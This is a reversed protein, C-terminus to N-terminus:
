ALPRGQQFIAAMEKMTQIKHWKDNIKIAVSTTKSHFAQIKGDKKLQMASKYVESLCQPLHANIYIRDAGPFGINSQILPKKIKILEIYRDNIENRIETSSFKVLIPPHNQTTKKTLSVIRHIKKINNDTIHTKLFAGIRSIIRKLDEQTDQTHPIGNVILEDQKQLGQIYCIERSLKEDQTDIRNNILEMKYDNMDATESVTNVLMTMQTSMSGLQTDYSEMRSQFNTLNMQLKELQTEFTNSRTKMTEISKTSCTPCDYPKRLKVIFYDFFSQSIGVCSLHM